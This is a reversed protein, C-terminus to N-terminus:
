VCPDGPDCLSAVPRAPGLGADAAGRLARRGTADAEAIEAIEANFLDRRV